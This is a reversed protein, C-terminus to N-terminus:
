RPPPRPSLRELREPLEAAWGEPFAHGLGAREDVTVAAGRRALERAAGRATATHREREGLVFHVALGAPAERDGIAEAYRLTAGVVLVGGAPIVGELALVLAAAAGQSFGALVVPGAGIDLARGVRRIADGDLRELARDLWVHADSEVAHEAWPLVLRWGGAVAAEWHPAARAPSGSARHFAVVTGRPRGEPAVMLPQRVTAAYATRNAASGEVVSGFRSDDRVPALDPDELAADAYWHGAAVASELAALAGDGDGSRALLCGRWFAAKAAHEPGLRDIVALAEAYAGGRHLRFIQAQAREFDLTM